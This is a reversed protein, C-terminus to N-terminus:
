QKKKWDLRQLWDQALQREGSTPAVEAYSRYAAESEELRQLHWLCDALLRRREAEIPAFPHGASAEFYPLAETYAEVQVLQRGILYGFTKDGLHTQMAQELLLVTSVPSRKNRLFDLLPLRLAPEQQLAWLRVWQLRESNLNVHLDLISQYVDRAEDVLDHTTYIDGQLELLTAKQANNLNASKLLESALKHAGELDDAAKLSQALDIQAAPANDLFQCIRRQLEVTEQPAVSQAARERLEAVEHACVRAFISQIRFREAAMQQERPTIVLTDLFNEWESTLAELSKGYSAVFDGHAYVKKLPESGYTRLLFRFFSGAQTYARGPAERWFGASGLLATIPPAINLQRMAKAWSHLDLAGSDPSLAEAVGEVIGLNVLVGYKSSVRMPGSGFEAAAAHVLEHAVVYHPFQVGHVHIESLWPKALMTNRGGMLAAKQEATKYIYSHIPRALTLNLTNLIQQLRFAHEDAMASQQEPTIDKGFHLVLDPRTIVTPLATEITQRTVRFGFRPGLMLDYAAISLIALMAAMARFQKSSLRLHPRAFFYHSPGMDWSRVVLAVAGIRLLTGLRFVVLRKDLNLTEDYLSGAFYGWLHDYAFIPPERYLMWLSGLLPATILTAIAAGRLHRKWTFGVRAVMVGLAAGYMSSAWPLLAFFYLGELYDCNRVRWANLSIAVLGPLLHFTALAMATLLPQTGPRARRGAGLGIIPATVASLLGVAFAYEYGLLNFLPVFCLICALCTQLATPLWFWRFGTM